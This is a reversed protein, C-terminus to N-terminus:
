LARSRGAAPPQIKRHHEAVHHFPRQAQLRSSGSIHGAAPSPREEAPVLVLWSLLTNPIHLHDPLHKEGGSHGTRRAPQCHDAGHCRSSSLLPSCSQLSPELSGVRFPYLGTPSFAGQAKNHLFTNLGPCLLTTKSSSQDQLGFCIRHQAGTSLFLSCGTRARCASPGMSSSPCSADQKQMGTM